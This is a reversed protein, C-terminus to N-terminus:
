TGKRVVCLCSWALFRSMPIQNFWQEFKRNLLVSWPLSVLGNGYTMFHRQIPEFGCDSILSDITAGRIPLASVSTSLRSLQLFRTRLSTCLTRNASDANPYTFVFYGRPKLVRQVTKFFQWPKELYDIVGLAYILDFSNDAFPLQEAQSQVFLFGNPNNARARQLMPNSIDVGVLKSNPLSRRAVSLVVGPGCGLDLASQPKLIQLYNVLIEMRRRKEFGFISTPHEYKARYQSAIQDFKAQIQNTTAM